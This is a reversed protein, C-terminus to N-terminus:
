AWRLVQRRARVGGGEKPERIKPPFNPRCRLGKQQTQQTLDRRAKRGPMARQGYRRCRWWQGLGSTHLVRRRACLASLHSSIRLYEHLSPKPGIRPKQGFHAELVASRHRLVIFALAESCLQWLDLPPPSPLGPPGNGPRARRIEEAAVEDVVSPAMAHFCSVYGRQNQCAVVWCIRALATRSADSGEKAAQAPSTGSGEGESLEPDAMGPRAVLGVSPAVVLQQGYRALEARM